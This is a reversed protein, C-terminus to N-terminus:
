FLTRIFDNAFTQKPDLRCRIERFTEYEPYLAAAEQTTLSFEKGWHPRGGLGKMAPEFDAFYAEALDKGSTEACIYCSDQKYVPSLLADDGQVFRFEIPVTVRNGHAQVIERNLHISEVAKEMPVAYECEYHLPYVGVPIEDYYPGVEDIKEYGAFAELRNIHAITNPFTDGFRMLLGVLHHRLFRDRFWRKAPSAPSAPADTSNLTNIYLLDTGALWYFRIRENNQTLEELQALVQDQPAAWGKLHVHYFPVCQLTVEVIIGLAGLSVQAARFLFPDQDRSLTVVQGGGTVIKMAVVHTHLCGLGLGTGHTGTSIAGAISQEMISGLNRLALGVRRLAIILDKIRIGAQVTVQQKERDITLIQSLRDLNILIGETRVLQSTSHWAGYVGIVKHAAEARHVIQVVEMVSSPQYFESPRCQVNRAWNHFVGDGRM